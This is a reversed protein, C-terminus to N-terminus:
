RVMAYPSVASVILGRYEPKEEDKGVLVGGIPAGILSAVATVSYFVGIRAGVKDDPTIQSVITPLLSIFFGSSFGFLCAFMVIVPLTHTPLWM